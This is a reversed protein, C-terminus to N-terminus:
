PLIRRLVLPESWDFLFGEEESLILELHLPELSELYVDCDATKDNSCPDIRGPLRGSELLAAFKDPNPALVVMQEDTRSLVGWLYRTTTTEEDRLSILTQGSSQRVYATGTKMIFQEGETEIWAIQLIGNEGDKVRIVLAADSGIWTGDWDAADLKIPDEGIPRDVYVAPCGYLALLLSGALLRHLCTM